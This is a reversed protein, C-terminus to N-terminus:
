DGEKSPIPLRYKIKPEITVSKIKGQHKSLTLKIEGYDTLKNIEQVLNTLRVDDFIINQTCNEGM